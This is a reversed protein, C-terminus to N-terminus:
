QNFIYNLYKVYSSDSKLNSIYKKLFKKSIFGQNLAIEELCAIKVGQRKEISYIFSSAEILNKHTGTDLWAFGRGLKLIKLKKLKLYKENVSTIEYEGRKSKKIKSAIKSVGRPYFYIGTIAYNSKPNKPKEIINVPLNKNDFNVIGYDSPNSVQYAFLTTYNSANKVAKKLYKVFDSGYFINDGLILCVPDNQVFKKGIVLAQAIGEPQEQVMYDIKLGLHSGDFFLKKFNDINNFNTIILIDRIGALMLTSLPYYIMPKDYVPLLQKSTFLTLPHLRSGEGGALIIGKM